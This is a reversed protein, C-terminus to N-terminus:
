PSEPRGAAIKAAVEEREREQRVLLAEYEIFADENRVADDLKFGHMQWPMLRGFRWGIERRRKANAREAERENSWPEYRNWKESRESDVHIKDGNDLWLYKPTRRVVLVSDSARDHGHVLALKDGVQVNTLVLETKMGALILGGSAGTM